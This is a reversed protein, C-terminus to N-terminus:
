GRSSPRCGHSSTGDATRDWEALLVRTIQPRVHVFEKALEANRLVAARRSEFDEATASRMAERIEAEDRCAIIGGLDFHRGIDPDGWYIPVTGCLLCDILKETFYGPDSSNEIVVSHSYPLFGDARNEFPQYGRGLLHVDLREAVAWAAIRHRLRHGETTTKGSAILSMRASRPAAPDVPGQLWSGGHTILRANGIRAVLPPHHTFVRHFHRALLPMLTYFRGHVARPELLLLSVRCRVRFRLATLLRSSVPVVAHDDVGLEGVTTREVTGAAGSRYVDVAVGSLNAFQRRPHGFGAFGVASM